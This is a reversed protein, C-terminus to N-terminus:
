LRSFANQHEGGGFGTSNLEPNSSSTLADTFPKNMM